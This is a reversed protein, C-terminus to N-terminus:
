FTLQEGQALCNTKEPHRAAVAPGNMHCGKISPGCAADFTNPELGHHDAPGATHGLLSQVFEEVRQALIVFSLSRCWNTRLTLALPIVSGTPGSLNKM